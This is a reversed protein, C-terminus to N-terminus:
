QGVSYQHVFQRKKAPCFDHAQNKKYLEELPISKGSDVNYSPTIKQKEEVPMM